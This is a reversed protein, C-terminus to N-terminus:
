SAEKSSAKKKKALAAKCAARIKEVKELKSGYEKETRVLYKMALKYDKLRYCALAANMSVKYRLERRVVKHAKQYLALASKGKGSQSLKIGMENLKAALFPGVEELHDMMKFAQGAKGTALLKQAEAEKIKPHDPNLARAEELLQEAKEYDGKEIYAAALNSKREPDRPNSKDLREFIGIAEDTKGIVMLNEGLKSKAPRFYKNMNGASRFVDAAEGFKGIAQLASAKSYAALYDYEHSDGLASEAEAIGGQDGRAISLSLKIVKAESSDEDDLTALVDRAQAAVEQVWAGEDIFQEIGFEFVDTLFYPEPDSCIIGQFHPIPGVRGRFLELLDCASRSDCKSSYMIMMVVTGTEIMPEVEEQIVYKIPLPFEVSSVMEQWQDALGDQDLDVLLCSRDM